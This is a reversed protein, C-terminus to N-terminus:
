DHYSLQIAKNLQICECSDSCVQKEWTREIIIEHSGWRLTWCRMWGVTKFFAQGPGAFFTAHIPVSPTVHLTPILGAVADDHARHEINTKTKYM